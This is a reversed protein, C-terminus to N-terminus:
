RCHAHRRFAFSCGSVSILHVHTLLAGTALAGPPNSWQRVHKAPISCQWLHSTCLAQNLTAPDLDKTSLLPFEKGPGNRIEPLGTLMATFPTMCM